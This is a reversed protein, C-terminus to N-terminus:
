SQLRDLVPPSTLTEVEDNLKKALKLQASRLNSAVEARLEEVHMGAAAAVTRAARNSIGTDQAVKRISKGSASDVMAKIAQDKTIRTKTPM